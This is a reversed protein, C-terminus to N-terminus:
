SDIGGFCLYKIDLYDDLGYRSGERGHGSEKIGGFPAAENSIIGENIGVMGYELAESVRWARAADKTYLYSALGFPTNNAIRIAEAESSFRTLPAVPGFIEKQFIDMDETVDGLVTPAVFCPGGEENSLATLVSAGQAVATEVTSRVDEAAHQHILPGIEVGDDRGDGMRLREVAEMLQDTFTDYITDQVLIRNTCVCTQGANRFKSAMVGQVAKEVDADDFVIFPANGGLEMSTRKMTGACAAVLKKGVPTSGTFSLKRVVPSATLTEGIEETRGALINIVGAPIGAQEALAGIALASLPTENAPKCVVTCGAALAPAIKRALMANPFNWPTICAVVGVPQRTCVIRSDSSRAPITDGYIRKAEEAFWEIYSAGYAIEGRAEALPKGQETTLLLALDEANELVLDHWRRLLQSRSKAPVDRWQVLAREAAAIAAETEQAGCDAIEAVVEQTAPNIVPRTGGAVADVWAGGILARSKLLSSNALQLETM